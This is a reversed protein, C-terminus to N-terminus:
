RRLDALASHSERAALPLPKREGSRNIPVLGNKHEIFGRAGQVARGFGGDEFSQVPQLTTSDGDEDDSM